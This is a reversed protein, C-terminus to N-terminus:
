ADVSFYMKLTSFYSEATSIDTDSILTTRSTTGCFSLVNQTRTAGTLVLTSDLTALLRAKAAAVPTETESRYVQTVGVLAVVLLLIFKAQSKM